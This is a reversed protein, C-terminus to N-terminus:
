ELEMGWYLDSMIHLPFSSDFFFFYIFIFAGSLCCLMASLITLLNLIGQVTGQQPLM